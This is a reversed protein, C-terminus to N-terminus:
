LINPVWGLRGEVGVVVIFAVWYLIYTTVRTAFNAAKYNKLARLYFRGLWSGKDTADPMGYGLTLIGWGPLIFLLIAPSITIMFASTAVAVGLRRYLKNSNEAGGLAWLISSAAMLLIVWWGIMFYFPFQICAGVFMEELNLEKGFLKIM